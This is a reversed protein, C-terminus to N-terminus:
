CDTGEAVIPPNNVTVGIGNMYEIYYWRGSVNADQACFSDGNYYMYPLSPGCYTECTPDLFPHSELYVQLMFLNDINGM